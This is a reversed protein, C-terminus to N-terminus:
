FKSIANAERTACITFFRDVICTVWTPDRPQSSGRSFSIGVCELIRAQLFGHVSSGPLGCDMLDCLTPCSQAHVCAPLVMGPFVTDLKKPFGREGARQWHQIVQHLGKGLMGRGWSIVIDEESVM